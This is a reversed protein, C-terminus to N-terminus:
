CSTSHRSPSTTSTTSGPAALRACPRTSNKTCPATLRTPWSPWGTSKESARPRPCVPLASAGSPGGPRASRGSAAQRLGSMPTYVKNAQFETRNLDPLAAAMAAACGAYQDDFSALAMDLPMERSFLDRRTIPHSQAQPLPLLLSQSILGQSFPLGTIWSGGGSLQSLTLAGSVGPPSPSQSSSAVSGRSWARPSDSRWARLSRWAFCGASNLLWCSPSPTLPPHSYVQLAEMLGMSVLLLSMMAPTQM